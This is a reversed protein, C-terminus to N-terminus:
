QKALTYKGWFDTPAALEAFNVNGGRANGGGAPRGGGGFGGGGGRGGGFGGGGGGRAGGGGGGGFGGVVVERDGGGAGGFNGGGPGRGGGMQLGNLKVNYAIEKGDGPTLGMQKLPIAIEYSFSGEADFDMAAKISYENYVSILSDSIDKFGVVKIEKAATLFRKENEKRASDTTAGFGPIGGGGAFGGPGGRGGGAAGGFGGAGRQGRTARTIVPFTIQFSEDEKKKNATNVAFTIAGAQIKAITTADTTKLQLYIFRADNSITYFAKVTKNYAKFSNNLETLKGDVKVGTAAWQPTEQVDKLKEQAFANVGTLLTFLFLYLPKKM